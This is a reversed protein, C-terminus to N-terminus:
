LRAKTKVGVISYPSCKGTDNLNNIFMKIKINIFMKIKIKIFM